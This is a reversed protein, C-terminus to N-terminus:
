RRTPHVDVVTVRALRGREDIPLEEPSTALSVVDGRGLYSWAATEDTVDRDLRRVRLREGKETCVFLEVKGKSPMADSVVRLVLRNPAGRAGLESAVESLLPETGGTPAQERSRHVLARLTPGDQRLVLYSFTLGQFRLGAARALPVLWAPLDVARDEHCWDGESALAPCAQTHLCPAFLVPASPGSALADRVAHLHRSRNRLAPEVVVLSGGPALEALLRRVLDAHRVVRAPADLTTDLESVVQGLLIVDPAAEGVFSSPVLGQGLRATRTRLALDIGGLGLTGLGESRAAEHLRAAAGLAAEDEDVLLAEIPGAQGAAALARALGWTMAGLGAGLDLVRLPRGDPPPALLRAAVLEAVAGVGKPVDRAFSFAVRAELPLAGREKSDGARGENYARSLIAVRPALKATQDLGPAGLRRLVSDLVPRWSEELPRALPDPRERRPEAHAM